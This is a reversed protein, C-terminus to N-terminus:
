SVWNRKNSVRKQVLRTPEWGQTLIQILIKNEGRLISFEVISLGRCTQGRINPKRNSLTEEYFKTGIYHSGVQYLVFSCLWFKALHINSDQFHFKSTVIKKRGVWYEQEARRNEFNQFIDIHATKNPFWQRPWIKANRAWIFVKCAFILWKSNKVFHRNRLTQGSETGPKCWLMKKQLTAIRALSTAASTKKCFLQM